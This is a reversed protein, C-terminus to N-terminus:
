PTIVVAPREYHGTGKTPSVADVVLVYEGGREPNFNTNITGRYLGASVFALNIGDLGTVPDGPIGDPDALSRGAYLTATVVADNVPNTPNLGDVFTWNLYQTIGGPLTFSNPVTM